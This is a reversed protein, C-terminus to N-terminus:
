ALCLDCLGEAQMLQRIRAAQRGSLEARQWAGNVVTPKLMQPLRNLFEPTFRSAMTIM